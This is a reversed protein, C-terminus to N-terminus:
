ETRLSKVPNSIAAKISQFSVTLLTILLAGAGAAAFIWWSLNTRYEYNQLWNYMFYYALPAAILLAVFVMMVFDKSLLGWLDLVSAGLVKRVGIEKTRQEAIFSAMGFIGLCSIFIALVAFFAALKGVREEDAFKRSYEEDTFKYSFPEEPSYKKCVAEVKALASATTLNPNLKINLIGGISSDLFYITQKAPEYPSEMVMDKVVGIIRYTNDYRKITEGVPNEFGIYKAATENIIIASSDTGFQNSFDRGNIFELGVTKGYGQTVNVTNFKASVQTSMGQWSFGNNFHDNETVPTNSEEIGTIAGRELLDNRMNALNNHYNYTQMIITILGQRSYGVPRSKAFQVQRFVTITAIILIVSVTFQVIVLVKRPIAANRGAKFTGKLVKVPQFSSLYIAPYLGAILGTVISFSIGALWFYINNWPFSIQKGSVSNFFPLILIVLLLSVIFALVATLISESFYQSILQSRLSGIAKRIGVEKARKESRATSLNMFNICALLLVFAGIIAFMWVYQIAGGTNVGNKFESYLHWKSMPHLLMEPKELKATQADIKNLKINKIKASVKALDANDNLQVFAQFSENYWNNENGTVWSKLDLFPAIFSVDKFSSNQPFDKYVGVVKENLEGDIKIVKGMPDENGFLTKTTSQSLLVSSSSQFSKRTGSLMQLSLMDPADPEMYNGQTNIKKDSSAVLSNMTWSSLVVRKFDSGYSRRLEAALPMVNGKTTNVNGNLTETQMVQAIRNYNDFNKDFSSESWIWLGILITVAMGASLGVINIFSHVKGRSLNRWATKFYNKFM